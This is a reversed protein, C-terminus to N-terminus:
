EKKAVTGPLDPVTIAQLESYCFPIQATLPIVNEHKPCSCYHEAHGDLMGRVHKLQTRLAKWINRPFYVLSIQYQWKLVQIYFTKYERKM